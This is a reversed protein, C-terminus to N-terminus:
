HSFYWSQKEGNKPMTAFTLYQWHSIDIYIYTYGIFKIIFNKEACDKNKQWHSWRCSLILKLPSDLPARTPKNYADALCMLPKGNLVQPLLYSLATWWSFGCAFVLYLFNKIPNAPLNLQLTKVTHTWINWIQFQITIQFGCLLIFTKSITTAEIFHKSFTSIVFTWNKRLNQLLKQRLIPIFSM